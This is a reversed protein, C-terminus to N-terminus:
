VHCHDTPSKILFECLLDNSIKSVNVNIHIFFFDDLIILMTQNNINKLFHTSNLNVETGQTPLSLYILKAIKSYFEIISQINNICHPITISAKM